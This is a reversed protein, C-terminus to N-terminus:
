RKTKAAVAAIRDSLQAIHVAQLEVTEWLRQVLDGLSHPGAAWQEPSPLGPLVGTKEWKARYVDPDLEDMRTEAFRRAPHHPRFEVREPRHEFVLEEVADIGNGHEDYVPAWVTLARRVVDKRRQLKEVYSGDPQPERVLEEVDVEVEEEIPVQHAPFVRDAVRLDWESTDIKGTRFAELVYCTLVVGDDRVAQASIEGDGPATGTPHGVLVGNGGVQLRLPLFAVGANGAQMCGENNTTDIGIMVKKGPSSAGSIRFQMNEWGGSDNISGADSQSVITTFSGAARTTGGIPTNNISGGTQAVGAV